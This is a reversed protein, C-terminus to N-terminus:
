NDIIDLIDSVPRNIVKQVMNKCAVFDNNIKSLEAKSYFNPKESNTKQMFNYTDILAQLYDLMKKEIASEQNFYVVSMLIKEKRQYESYLM